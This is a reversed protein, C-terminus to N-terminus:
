DIRDQGLSVKWNTSLFNATYVYIVENYARINWCFMELRMSNCLTTSPIPTQWFCLFGTLWQSSPVPFISRGYFVAKERERGVGGKIVSKLFENYQGNEREVADEDM